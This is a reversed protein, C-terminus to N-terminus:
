YPELPTLLLLLTSAIQAPAVIQHISALLLSAM